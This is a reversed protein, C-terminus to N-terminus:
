NQLNVRFRRQGTRNKAPVKYQLSAAITKRLTECVSNRDLSIRESAKLQCYEVMAQWQLTRRREVTGSRTWDVASQLQFRKPPCCSTPAPPPRLPFVSVWCASKSPGFCG